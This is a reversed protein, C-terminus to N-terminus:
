LDKLPQFYIIDDLSIMNKIKIYLINYYLYKYKEIESYNHSHIINNFNEINDTNNDFEIIAKFIGFHDINSKLTELPINNIIQNNLIFHISHNYNYYDSYDYDYHLLKFIYSIDNQFIHRDNDLNICFIEFEFYIHYSFDELGHFYNYIIDIVDSNFQHFKYNNYCIKNFYEFPIIHAM